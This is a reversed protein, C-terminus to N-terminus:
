GRLVKLQTRRKSDCLATCFADLSQRCAFGAPKSPVLCCDLSRPAPCSAKIDVDDMFLSLEVAAEMHAVPVFM